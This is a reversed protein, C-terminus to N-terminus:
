NRSGKLQKWPKNNTPPSIGRSCEPVNKFMRNCVDKINTEKSKHNVESSGIVTKGKVGSTFQTNM